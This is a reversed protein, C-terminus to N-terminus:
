PLHQVISQFASEATQLFTMVVYVMWAALATYIAIRIARWM